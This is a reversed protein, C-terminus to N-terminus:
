KPRSKNSFPLLSRKVAGHIKHTCTHRDTEVKSITSWNGCFMTDVKHRELIGHGTWEAQLKHAVHQQLYQTINGTSVTSMLFHIEVRKLSFRHYLALFMKYVNLSNTQPCM